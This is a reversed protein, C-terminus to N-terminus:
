SSVWIATFYGLINYVFLFVASVASILVQIPAFVLFLYLSPLAIGLYALFKLNNFVFSVIIEAVGDLIQFPLFVTGVVLPRGSQRLNQLWRTVYFTLTHKFPHLFTGCLVAWLLPSLFAELIYYVAVVGCCVIVAFLTAGTNYFAQKLAKDHGQPVLNMMTEFPSRLLDTSSAMITKFNGFRPQFGVPVLYKNQTLNSVM